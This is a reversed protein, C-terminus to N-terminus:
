DGPGREPLEVAVNTGKIVAIARVGPELGLEDALLRHAQRYAELAEVQRGDRYLALMLHGRLRERFPYRQVLTAIEPVLSPNGLALEVEIRRELALARLEELRRIETQAFEEGALDALPDGRWLALASHLLESAERPAADASRSLLETFRHLDFQEPAVRLLYGAPVTEITEAGLLKRLRSVYVQLTNADPVPRRHGWLEETLRESAVPENARLLLAALLARAAPGGLSVPRGDRAVELPGLVRFEVGM